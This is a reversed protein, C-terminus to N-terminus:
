FINLQQTIQALANEMSSLRRRNDAIEERTELNPEEHMVDWPTEEESWSAPSSTGTPMKPMSKNSKAKLHLGKSEPIPPTIESELEKREVYLSLFYLFAQHAEKQSEKARVALTKVFREGKRENEQIHAAQVRAMYRMVDEGEEQVIEVEDSIWTRLPTLTGPPKTGSASAAIPRAEAWGCGEEHVRGAAKSTVMPPGRRPSSRRGRDRSRSRWDYGRGRDDERRIVIVKVAIAGWHENIMVEM